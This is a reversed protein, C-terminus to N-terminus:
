ATVPDAAASAQAAQYARLSRSTDFRGSVTWWLRAYWPMDWFSQLSMAIYAVRGELLQRERERQQAGKQGINM